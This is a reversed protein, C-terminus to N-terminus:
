KKVLDLVASTMGIIGTRITPEPVPAFKSSHLSPLPTGTKKSEAAKAPDVAGVNFMFAPVSHDPLSYECFDEAGMTPDKAIIKDSGLATKLAATVRRTLEPNNYTAATSEDQRVHVDPMKDPPLGAATACGKAIRDIAALVKDRVEKKYTRVTLQMKVEDPIINHKTGGHISGVTIVLPDIPNNERSAITQWANIMEASLVIPDKTKHPYAGHGGAGRVTVDVSDVNAYAYGETVGIKGTEIEADDHLALAYNPKPWRTYLGDQLLARAGGVTEEAPQGVFIITGHWKEKSKALARATGILTSMHIDHGCAHMVPVDKGDDSKTTVTSAYPVGTEEHVPLADLDTRVLVTPGAGNKMVGIVGFCSPGPKDYKGVHETVECGALKLEKAVIGASREEHMSLEPHTHLDKYIALLSPLEADAMSEPTQQPFGPIASLILLLLISLSCIKM